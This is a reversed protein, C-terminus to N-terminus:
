PAVACPRSSCRSTAPAARCSRRRRTPRAPRSTIVWCGISTPSAWWASPQGRRVWGGACPSRASWTGSHKASSGPVPRAGRRPQAPGRGSTGAPLGAPWGPRKRAAVSAEDYRALALLVSTRAQLARTATVVDEAAAAHELAREHHLDALPGRATRAGALHAVGLSQPDGLREALTWVPPPPRGAPMRGASCPWCTRGAPWGTSSTPRGRRGTSRTQCLRSAPTWATSRTSRQRSTVPWTTCAPSGPPWAPRGAPRDRSPGGSSRLSSPGPQPRGGDAACRRVYAAASRVPGGSRARGRRRRSRRLPPRRRPPAHRRGAPRRAPRGRGSGRRGRAGPRGAALRAPHRVRPGPRAAVARVPPAPSTARLVLAIAPVM